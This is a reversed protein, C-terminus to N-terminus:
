GRKLGEMAVLLNSTRPYRSRYVERGDHDFAVVTGTSAGYQAALTRGEAQNLDVAVEEARGKLRRELAGLRPRQVLCLISFDSYFYIVLPRGAGLAKRIRKEPHSTPRGRRLWVWAAVLLACLGLLAVLGLPNEATPPMWWLALVLVVAVALLAYSFRAIHIM